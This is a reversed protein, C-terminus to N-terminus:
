DIHTPHPELNPAPRRAAALPVAFAPERRCGIPWNYLPDGGSGPLIPRVPWDPSKANTTSPMHFAEREGARAERLSDRPSDTVVGIPV